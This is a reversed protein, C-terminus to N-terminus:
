ESQEKQVFLVAYARPFRALFLGEFADYSKRHILEKICDENLFAQIDDKKKRGVLMLQVSDTIHILKCNQKECTTVDHVGLDKVQSIRCKVRPSSSAKKQQLARVVTMGLISVNVTAPDKGGEELELPTLFSMARRHLIDINLGNGHEYAVNICEKIKTMLEMRREPLLGQILSHIQRNKKVRVYGETSESTYIYSDFLVDDFPKILRPVMDYRPSPFSRRLPSDDGSAGHVFGCFPIVLLFILRRM